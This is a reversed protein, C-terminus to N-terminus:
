LYEFGTKSKLSYVDLIDMEEVLMDMAIAEAAALDKEMMVDEEVKPSKATSWFAEGEEGM